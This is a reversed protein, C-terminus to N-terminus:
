PAWYLSLPETMFARIPLERADDSSFATSFVRRKDMGTVHVYRRRSDLLAQRSFSMRAQTVSPAHAALLRRTTTLGHELEPSDPFLSATHGDGGMGLIVVSAPWHLEGVQQELADVGAEPTDADNVLPHFLATAAENAILHTRVLRTNSDDHAEDVWREDALTVDVRSWELRKQSLAKFFPVPTSGGSVILTARSQHELDERLAAAVAEALSEALAQRPEITQETSDTTKM